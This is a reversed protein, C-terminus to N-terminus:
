SVANIYEDISSSSLSFINPLYLAKEVTPKKIAENTDENRTLYEISLVANQVIM